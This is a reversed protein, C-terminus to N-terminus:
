KRQKGRIRALVYLFTLSIEFYKLFFELGWCFFDYAFAVEEVLWCLRDVEFFMTLSVNFILSVNRFRELLFILCTCFTMLLGFLLVLSLIVMVVLPRDHFCTIMGILLSMALSNMLSDFECIALMLQARLAILDLVNALKMCTSSLSITKIVLLTTDPEFRWSISFYTLFESEVSAFLINNALSKM